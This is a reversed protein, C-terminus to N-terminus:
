QEKELSRLLERQTEGKLPHVFDPAIEVMPRLVFLRDEIRPHPLQPNTEHVRDGWYLFDLDIVRDPSSGTRDRGIEGELDMLIELIDTESNGSPDAELHVVQNLFDRDTEIGQPTTEHITSSEILNLVESFRESARTLYSRRNGLNSGLGVFLYRDM